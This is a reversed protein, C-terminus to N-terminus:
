RAAVLTVVEATKDRSAIYEREARSRRLEQGTGNGEILIQSLFYRDGYRHFRLWSEGQAQQVVTSHSFLVLNKSPDESRIWVSNALGGGTQVTYEGAPFAKEGAVFDFPIKMRMALKSQGSLSTSVLSLAALMVFMTRKVTTKM